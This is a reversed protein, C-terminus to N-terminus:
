PFIVKAQQQAWESAADFDYWKKDLDLAYGVGWIILGCGAIGLLKRREFDARSDSMAAGARWVITSGAILGAAAALLLAADDASTAGEPPPIAAAPASM